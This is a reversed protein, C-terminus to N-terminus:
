INLTALHGNKETRGLLLKGRAHNWILTKKKCLLASIVKQKSKLTNIPVGKKTAERIKPPSFFNAEVRM